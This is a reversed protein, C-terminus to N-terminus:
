EYNKINENYYEAFEVVTNYVAEIDLSLLNEDLTYSVDFDEFIMKKEFEQIAEIVPILLNWDNKYDQRDYQVSHAINKEVNVLYDGVNQIEMKDMWNENKLQWKTETEKDDFYGVTVFDLGIFKAILKDSETM